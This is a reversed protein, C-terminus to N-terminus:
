RFKADDALSIWPSHESELLHHMFWRVAGRRALVEAHSDHLAEGRDTLKNAPLCKLGSAVSIIKPPLCPHSLYFAALVTADISKTTSYYIAHIANILVDRDSHLSSM